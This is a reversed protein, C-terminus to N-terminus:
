VAFARSDTYLLGAVAIFLFLCNCEMFEEFSFVFNWRSEM